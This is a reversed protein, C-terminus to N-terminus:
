RPTNKIYYLTLPLTVPLLVVTAMLGTFFITRQIISAPRPRPRHPQFYTGSYLHPYDVYRSQMTGIWRRLRPLRPDNQLSDLPPVPVSAHCQVIGFLLFDATSPTDGHLYEGPSNRLRNEWFLFQQTFDDPDHLGRVIRAVAMLTLMYFAIYGRLFNAISRVLWNSHLDGAKSFESLFTPLHDPRHLVGQWADRIAQMDNTSLPEFGLEQLITASERTWPGHDLSAVPMLVGWRKFAAWPPTSRLTLPIKKERAGLLIAQVWPSHDGGYMTIHM